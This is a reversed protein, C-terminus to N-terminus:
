SLKAAAAEYESIAQSLRSALTEMYEVQAMLDGRMEEYKGYFQSPAEGIWDIEELGSVARNLLTIFDKLESEKRGLLDMVARVSDIDMHIKKAM